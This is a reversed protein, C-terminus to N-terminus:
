SVTCTGNVCSQGEDCLCDGPCTSCDEGNLPECTGDGCTSAANLKVWAYDGIVGDNNRDSSCGFFGGSSANYQITGQHAENCIGSGVSIRVAGDIDVKAQPINSSGISVNGTNYYIDVGNKTWAAQLALMTWNASDTTFDASSYHNTSCIYYSGDAKVVDCEIYDISGLWDGKGALQCSSSVNSYHGAAVQLAYIAESLDIKGNGDIDGVVTSGALLPSLITAAVLLAVLNKM